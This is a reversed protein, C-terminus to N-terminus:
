KTFRHPFQGIIGNALMNSMRLIENHVQDYATVDAAFDGTLRAVAERTTLALHRHMMKKMDAFPWFRPNAEALFAAIQDANEYWEKQAAALQTQDGAKAAQLVAVAELIHTRLLSTLKNGAAKGYFPKIANGIDVQNQLLRTEANNLDPLDAAFSVIALRTWTVHDEWLKDMARHFVVIKHTSLAPTAHTTMGAMAGANAIVAAYLGIAAALAAVALLIRTLPSTRTLTTM